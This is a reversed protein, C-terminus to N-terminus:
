PVPLFELCFGDESLFVIVMFLFDGVAAVFSLLLLAFRCLSVDVELQITPSNWPMM